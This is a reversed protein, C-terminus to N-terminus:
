YQLLSSPRSQHFTSAVPLKRVNDQLRVLISIRISARPHRDRWGLRSSNSYALKDTSDSDDSPADRQSVMHATKRRVRVLKESTAAHRRDTTCRLMPEPDNWRVRAMAYLGARFSVRVISENSKRLTVPFPDKPFTMCTRLFSVWRMWASLVIRFALMALRGPSIVCMGSVPCARDPSTM